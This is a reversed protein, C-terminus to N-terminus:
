ISQVTINVDKNIVIIKDKILNGFQNYYTIILKSMYIKFKEYLNGFQEYLISIVNINM